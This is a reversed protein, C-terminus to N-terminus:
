QIDMALFSSFFPCVPSCLNFHGEWCKNTWVEKLTILIFNLLLRKTHMNKVSHQAQFHVSMNWCNVASQIKKLESTLLM